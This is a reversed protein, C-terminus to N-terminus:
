HLEGKPYFVRSTGNSIEFVLRPYDEHPKLNMAAMLDAPDMDAAVAHLAACRGRDGWVIEMQKVLGRQRELKGTDTAAMAVVPVLASTGAIAFLTRRTTTNADTM